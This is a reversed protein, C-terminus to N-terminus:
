PGMEETDLQAPQTLYASVQDFIMSSFNIDHGEKKPSNPGLTTTIAISIKKSPLYAMIGQFGSFLPNQLLWSNVNFIGLGYYANADKNILSRKAIQLQHSKESLLAGTGIARASAAM